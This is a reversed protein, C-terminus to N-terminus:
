GYYSSCKVHNINYNSKFNRNNINYLLMELVAKRLVSTQQTKPERLDCGLGTVLQTVQALNRVERYRLKRRQLFAM